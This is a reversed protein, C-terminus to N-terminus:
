NSSRPIKVPLIGAESLLKATRESGTKLWQEYLRLLNTHNQVRSKESVESLIDVYVIFRSALETFIERLAVRQALIQSLSGYATEGMQIYYDVDVLHRTLSAPFFGSIFLAFDGLRRLLQVRTETRAQSAQLFILALPEEKFGETPTRYVAETSLCGHLLNVLYYEVAEPASIPHKRKQHDLAERILTRFYEPLSSANLHTATDAM